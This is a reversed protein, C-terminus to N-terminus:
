NQYYYDYKNLLDLMFTWAENYSLGSNDPIIIKVYLTKKYKQKLQQLNNHLAAASITQYEEEGSPRYQITEIGSLKEYRVEVVYKGIASRSPKILKNYKGELTKYEDVLGSQEQQALAIQEKYDSINDEYVQNQQNLLILAANKDAILDDKDAITDYQQELEASLFVNEKKISIVQNKYNRIKARHMKNKQNLESLRAEKAKLLVIQQELKQEKKLLANSSRELKGQLSNINLDIATLEQLAQMLQKDRTGLQQKLRKKQQASQSLQKDQEAILNDRAAASEGAHMLQLRLLSLESQTQALTEELSAKEKSTKQVAAATRREAEISLQLKRSIQYRQDQSALLEKSTKQQAATTAKLRQSIKQEVKIRAQLENVLEWNKVILISTAILFIMVVVTMIDTFSPWFSEDVMRGQNQRLDVFGENM